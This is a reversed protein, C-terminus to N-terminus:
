CQLKDDNYGSNTRNQKMKAVDLIHHRLHLYHELMINEFDNLEEITITKTNEAKTRYEKIADINASLMDVAEEDNQRKYFALDHIVSDIRAIVFNANVKAYQEEAKKIEDDQNM